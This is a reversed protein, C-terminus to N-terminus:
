TANDKLEKKLTIERGRIEIMNQSIETNFSIQALKNKEIFEKNEQNFIMLKLITIGNKGKQEIFYASDLHMTIKGGLVKILDEIVEMREKDNKVAISTILESCNPNLLM